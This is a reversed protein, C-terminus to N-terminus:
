DFYAYITDYASVPRYAFYEGAGLYGRLDASRYFGKLRSYPESRITCGEEPCYFLYYTSSLTMEEVWKVADPSSLRGADKGGNFWQTYVKLVKAAFYFNYDNSKILGFQDYINVTFSLHSSRSTFKPPAYAIQYTALGHTPRLPFLVSAASVDNISFSDLDGTNVKVECHLGGKPVNGSLKATLHIPAASLYVDNEPEAQVECDVEVTFSNIRVDAVNDDYITIMMTHATNAHINFDSTDNEGLYVIYDILRNDCAARIRLYTAHAPATLHNKGEQTTIHPVTGAPNPLMYFSGSMKPALSEHTIIRGNEYGAAAGPAQGQFPCYAAPMSMVQVSQLVIKRASPAVRVTYNVKAVARQVVVPPLVQEEVSSAVAIDSVATMPLDDYGERNHLTYASLQEFDLEGLDAHHNVIVYMRYQGAPFNFHVMAGHSYKHLLVEQEKVLYVNVDTITHEDTSRLMVEQESIYIPVTVSIPKLSHSTTPNQICSCMYVALISIFIRQM